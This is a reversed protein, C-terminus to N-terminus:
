WRLIAVVGNVVLLFLILFTLFRAPGDPMVQDLFRWFYKRLLPPM